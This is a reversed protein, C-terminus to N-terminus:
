VAILLFRIFLNVLGRVILNINSAKKRQLQKAITPCGMGTQYLAFIEKVVASKENLVYKDKEVEIWQPRKNTVITGKNFAQERKKAWGKRIRDSKYKSEDYARQANMM